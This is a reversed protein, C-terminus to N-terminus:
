RKVLFAVAERVADVLSVCGPGGRPLRPTTTKPKPLKGDIMEYLGKVTKPPLPRAKESVPKVPEAEVQVDESFSQFNHIVDTM